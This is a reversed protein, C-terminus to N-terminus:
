VQTMSGTASFLFLANLNCSVIKGIVKRSQFPPSVDINIQPPSDLVDIADDELDVITSGVSFLLIYMM